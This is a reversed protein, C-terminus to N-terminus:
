TFLYGTDIFVVPIKPIQTTVLHLMVASQIGFSTSLVLKDGYEKYAWRVRDVASANELDPQTTSQTEVAQVKKM